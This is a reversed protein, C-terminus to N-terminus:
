SSSDRGDTDALRDLWEKATQATVERFLEPTSIEVLFEVLRERNSEEIDVDERGQILEAWDQLEVRSLEGALFRELASRAHSATFVVLGESNDWPLASAAEVAAPVRARLEILDTLTEVRRQLLEDATVISSTRGTFSRVM